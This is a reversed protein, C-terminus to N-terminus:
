QYKLNPFTKEHVCCLVSCYIMVYIWNRTWYFLYSNNYDGWCSPDTHLGQWAAGVRVCSFWGSSPIFMDVYVLSTHANISSECSSGCNIDLVGTSNIYMSIIYSGLMTTQLFLLEHLFRYNRHGSCYNNYANIQDETVKLFKVATCNVLLNLCSIYFM